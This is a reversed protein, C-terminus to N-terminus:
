TRTGIGVRVCVDKRFKFWKERQGVVPQHSWVDLYAFDLYYAPIRVINEKM